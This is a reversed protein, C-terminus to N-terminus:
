VVSKRDEAYHVVNTAPAKSCAAIPKWSKAVNPWCQVAASDDTLHLLQVRSSGHVILRVAVDMLNCSAGIVMKKVDHTCVFM